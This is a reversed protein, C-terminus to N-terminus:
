RRSSQERGNWNSEIEIPWSHRILWVWGHANTGDGSDGCILYCERLIVGVMRSLACLPFLLGFSPVPSFLWRWIFEFYGFPSCTSIYFGRISEHALPQNAPLRPIGPSECFHSDVRIQLCVLFCTLLFENLRSTDWENTTRTMATPTPDVRRPCVESSM